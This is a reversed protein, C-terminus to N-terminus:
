ARERRKQAETKTYGKGFIVAHFGEGVKLLWDRTPPAVNDAPHMPAPAEISPPQVPDLSSSKPTLGKAVRKANAADEQERIAAIRAAEKEAAAAEAARAALVEPPIIEEFGEHFLAMLTATNDDYILVDYHMRREDRMERMAIKHSFISFDDDYELVGFIPDGNVELNLLRYRRM